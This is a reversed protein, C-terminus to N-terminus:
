AARDGFVVRTAAAIQRSANEMLAELSVGLEESAVRDIEAMKAATAVPVDAARVEPLADITM